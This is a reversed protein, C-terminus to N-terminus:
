LSDNASGKLPTTPFASSILQPNTIVANFLIEIDIKGKPKDRNRKKLCVTGGAVKQTYLSDDCEENFSQSLYTQISKNTQQFLIKGEHLILVPDMLEELDRVQHTSIIITREPTLSEALLKRFKSKSPIDLGNTPEDLLLLRCGSALGFSVMVKKKQGYSLKQLKSIDSLQYLNLAEKFINQKFGPYFPANIKLYETISLSPYSFEESIFITEQLVEPLRLSTEKHDIQCSGSTPFLLGAFIKLLSTKGAGNKGLLGYIKGTEIQMNLHSFLLKQKPYHFDLDQTQLLM